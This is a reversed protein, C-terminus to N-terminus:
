EERLAVMPDVRTARLAPIACAAVAVLVSIGAVVAFTVPDHETVGFLFNSLVRTVVLAGLTGAMIGIAAMRLGRGLVMRLVDGRMAGLAMRVGFEQTRETVSYSIVGYIGISAVLLALGAFVGILTLAFRRPAMSEDVLADVTKISYVPLDPNMARLEGRIASVLASPELSSRVALAMRLVPFQAHPLYIQPMPVAASGNEHVDGVIGEIRFYTTGDLTVRHGLPDENPFYRRALGESILAVKPANEGDSPTLYRGRRLAIGMTQFYGPSAMSVVADQITSVDPDPRGEILFLNHGNGTLPATNIAGVSVVGPLRGVRDLLDHLFPIARATDKATGPLRVSATLLHSTEFGLPVKQVEWFSRLLLGTAILLILTLAMEAAALVAGTRGRGPGIAGREAAKLSDSLEIRIAQRAPLVGFLIATACAAAFTFLMVMWDMRVDAARPLFATGIWLMGRLTAVGLLLGAAGGTLSLMLSETLLQRVLRGAGGGLATRIAFERRRESARALCLNAVNACAILLLLAASGLLLWLPRKVDGVIAEDLPNVQVTWARNADPYQDALRAAVIAMESRAQALSVGPKLRAFVRLFDSRREAALNDLHPWWFDRSTAGGFNPQFDPAMVGVITEVADAGTGTMQTFRIKRGLIKPDRGFRRTWLADSLIIVDKGSDAATFGRGIAPKIGFLDLFNTTTDAGIVIEAGGEGTLTAQAGAMAAMDEFCHNQERWDKFNPLSSPERPANAKFNSEWIAVLRDPARYPLSRLLVGRIVSFVATNAGIGLALAFVAIAAFGPRRALMRFGYQLDALLTRM